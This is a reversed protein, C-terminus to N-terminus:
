NDSLNVTAFSIVWLWFNARFRFFDASNYAATVAHSQKLIHIHKEKKKREWTDLQDINNVM